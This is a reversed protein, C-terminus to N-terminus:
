GEHRDHLSVAGYFGTVDGFRSDSTAVYTGGAMYHLGPGDPQYPEVSVTRIRGFLRRVVLVVAPADETVSHPARMPVFQTGGDRYETGVITVEDVRSSIGGLSFDGRATRYINARLGQTPQETM